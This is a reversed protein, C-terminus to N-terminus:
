VGSYFISKIAPFWEILWEKITKTENKIPSCVMLTDDPKYEGSAFKLLIQGRMAWRKGWYRSHCFIMNYDRCEVEAM